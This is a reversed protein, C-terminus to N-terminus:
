EKIREYVHVMKIEREGCRGVSEAIGLLLGPLHWM